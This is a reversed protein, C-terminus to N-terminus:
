PSNAYVAVVFGVMAGSLQAHIFKAFLATAGVPSVDLHAGDTVRVDCGSKHASTIVL